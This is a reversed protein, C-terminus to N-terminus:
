AMKRKWRCVYKIINATDFAEIGTLDKAYEEIVNITELAGPNYHEPHNVMEM